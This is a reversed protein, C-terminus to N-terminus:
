YIVFNINEMKFICIQFVFLRLKIWVEVFLLIDIRLKVFINIKGNNLDLLINLGVFLNNLKILGFFKVQIRM